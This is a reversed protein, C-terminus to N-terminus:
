KIRAKALYKDLFENQVQLADELTFFDERLGKLHHSKKVHVSLNDAKYSRSYM